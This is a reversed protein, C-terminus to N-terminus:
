TVFFWFHTVLIYSSGPMFSLKHVAGQVSTHVMDTVIHLCNSQGSWRWFFFRRFNKCWTEETITKQMQLLRSTCRHVTHCYPNHLKWVPPVFNSLNKGLFWCVWLFNNFKLFQILPAESTKLFWLKLLWNTEDEWYFSYWM